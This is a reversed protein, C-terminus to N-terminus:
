RRAAAKLEEYWNLVLMLQEPTQGLRRTMPFRQGDPSVDNFPCWSPLM